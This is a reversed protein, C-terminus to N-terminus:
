WRRWTDRRDAIAIATGSFSEGGAGSVNTITVGGPVLRGFHLWKGDVWVPAADALENSFWGIGVANQLASEEFTAIRTGDSFSAPDAWDQNPNEDYFVDFASGPPIVFIREDGPETVTVPFELNTLRLTFNATAVSPPGGVFPLGDLHTIYGTLEFKGSVPSFYTRGVFHFAIRGAPVPPVIHSKAIGAGLGDGADEYSTTPLTGLAMLVAGGLFYAGIRRRIM